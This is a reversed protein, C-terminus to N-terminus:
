ASNKQKVFLFPLAKAIGWARRMGGATFTQRLYRCMIRPRFYFKRYIKRHLDHLQESTLGEPVFVTNWCNFRSWDGDAFLGDAAAQTYQESGPLPTNLTAVIDSLPLRLALDITQEITEATEGPHGIIFFGKTHIGLEHCWTIVREAKDLDINKKIRRLIEESGSEIGFSIHWCGHDRMFKLLDYDVTDVRSMCTWWIRVGEADLREFLDYIRRPNITFTDDLFAVEGVGFNHRLQLIEDAISEASRQRLLRGFTSRDCFTCANPCGRSSVVSLVPLTRYNCPPPTYPELDDLLDYAPYPLADLDEMRPRPPNVVIQGDRRFALGAVDGPDRDERIVDMLETLTHEGEGRIAYDFCDHGLANEPLASAHPGGVAIPTAPTAARIAEAVEVARAFAVTTASVGVLAPKIKAVEGAIDEATRQSAEGDIVRPHLGKERAWAALSLVGLPPQSGGASGISSSYRERKTIPPYILV